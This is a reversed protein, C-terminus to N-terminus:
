QPLLINHERFHGAMEARRRKSQSSRSYLDKGSDSFARRVREITVDPSYPTGPIKAPANAEHLIANVDGGSLMVGVAKNVYHKTYRNARDTYIKKIKYLQGQKYAEASRFGIMSAAAAVPTDFRAITKGSYDTTRYGGSPDRTVVIGPITRAVPTLGAIFRKMHEGSEGYQVMEKGAKVMQALNKGTPGLFFDFLSAKSDPFELGLRYSIDIGALSPVGRGIIPYKLELENLKASRNRVYQSLPISGMGGVLGYGALLRMLPYAQKYNGTAMGEIAMKSLTEIFNVQHLFYTKFQLGMKVMPDGMIIPQSASGYPFQTLNVVEHGFAKAKQINNMGLGGKSIPAMAKEYGAIFSLARNHKMEVAKFPYLVVNNISDMMKSSSLDTIGGLLKQADEGHVRMTYGAEQVLKKYEPKNWLTYAHGVWKPGILSGTNIWLQTANVLPLLPNMGIKLAAQAQMITAIGKIVKAEDAGFIGTYKAIWKASAGPNGLVNNLIGEMYAKAGRTNLVASDNMATTWKQVADDMFMKKPMTHLYEEIQNPRYFLGEKELALDHALEDAFKQKQLEGAAFPRRYKSHPIYKEFAKIMQNDTVGNAKLTNWADDGLRARVGAINAKKSGRFMEDLLVKHVENGKKIPIYAGKNLIADRLYEAIQKNRVASQISTPIFGDTNIFARGILNNNLIYKEAERLSMGSHLNYVGEMIHEPTIQQGAKISNYGKPVMVSYRGTTSRTVHTVLPKGDAGKRVYKAWPRGGGAVQFGGVNKGQALPFMVDDMLGKYIGKFKDAVVAQESTLGNRWNTYSPMSTYRDGHKISMMIKHHSNLPLAKETQRMAKIVPATYAAKFNQVDEAPVRLLRALVNGKNLRIGAIGSPVEDVGKFIYHMTKESAWIKSRIGLQRSAGLTVKPIGKAAKIGQYITHLTKVAM